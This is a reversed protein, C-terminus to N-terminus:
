FTIIKQKYTQALSHYGLTDIFTVLLNLAETQTNCLQLAKVFDEERSHKKAIKITQSNTVFMTDSDQATKGSLSKILGIPKVKPM